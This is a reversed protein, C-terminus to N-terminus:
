PLLRLDGLQARTSGQQAGVENRIAFRCGDLDIGPTPGAQLDPFDATLHQGPPLQRASETRSGGFRKNAITM